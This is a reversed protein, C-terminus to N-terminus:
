VAVGLRDKLAARVEALEYAGYHTDVVKGDSDVLLTLPQLQRLTMKKRLRDDPDFVSPYSVGTGQITRRADNENDNIDVGLIRLRSGASAHVQQLTPMEQQCPACWSAWVNILTPVGRLGGLQVRADSGLCALELDPLRGPGGGSGTPQGSVPCPDTAIPPRSGSTSPSESPRPAPHSYFCGSLTLLLTLAVPMARRTM